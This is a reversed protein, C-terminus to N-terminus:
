CRVAMEMWHALDNWYRRGDPAEAQVFWVGGFDQTATVWVQVRAHELHPAWTWSTGVRPLIDALIDNADPTSAPLHMITM